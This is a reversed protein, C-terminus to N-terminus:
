SLRWLALGFGDKIKNAYDDNDILTPWQGGMSRFLAPKPATPYSGSLDAFRIPM